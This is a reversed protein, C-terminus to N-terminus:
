PATLNKSTWRPITSRQYTRRMPQRPYLRNGHHWLSCCFHPRDVRAFLCLYAPLLIFWCLLPHGDGQNQLIRGLKTLLHNYLKPIKALLKNYTHLLNENTPNTFPPAQPKGWRSPWRHGEDLWFESNRYLDDPTGNRGLAQEVRLLVIWAQLALRVIELGTVALNQVFRLIVQIIFWTVQVTTKSLFDGKAKDEIEKATITINFTPDEPKVFEKLMEANLVTYTPMKPLIVVPTLRATRKNTQGM